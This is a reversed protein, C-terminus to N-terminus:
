INRGRKWIVGEDAFLSKGVEPEVQNFVYSIMISFMLPSLVRGQPTGNEIQFANSM